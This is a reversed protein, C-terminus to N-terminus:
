LTMVLGIYFLFGFLIAPAYAYDRQGRAMALLALLGGGLAMAFIVIGLGVPGVVMGLAAILKADGGGFKAFRFLLYGIFLGVLGGLLVWVVSVGLLGISAATLALLSIAMAIWDPIERSQLDCVVAIGLLSVVLLAFLLFM